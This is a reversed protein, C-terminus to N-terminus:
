ESWLVVGSDSVTRQGLDRVGFAKQKVVSVKVGMLDRGPEFEAESHRVRRELDSERRHLRQGRWWADNALDRYCVGPLDLSALNGLHVETKRLRSSFGHSLQPSKLADNHLGSLLFLNLNLERLLIQPSNLVKILSVSM